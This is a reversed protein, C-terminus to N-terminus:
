LEKLRTNLGELNFEQPHWGRAWLVLEQQRDDRKGEPTYVAEVLEGYGPIGGCDEPPGAGLGELCLALEREEGPVDTKQIIKKIRIRHRWNDGFDYIYEFDKCLTPIERLFLGDEDGVTNDAMEGPDSYEEGNISFVHTHTGSWGYSLQLVHHLDKLSMSGPLRLLRLVPPDLDVIEVELLLYMDAPDRNLREERRWKLIKSEHHETILDMIERYNQEIEAINQGIIGLLDKEPSEEPHHHLIDLIQVLRAAYDSLLDIEESDFKKSDFNDPSGYYSETDAIWEVIHQFIRLAEGHLRKQERNEESPHYRDKVERSFTDFADLFSEWEEDNMGPDEIGIFIERVLDRYSIGIDMSNRICAEAYPLPIPLDYRSILAALSNEHLRADLSGAFSRAFSDPEVTKDWLYTDHGIKVLGIRSSEQLYGGMHISPHSIIEKGAHFFARALEEAPPLPWDVEEITKLFGSDLKKVFIEREGEEVRHEPLAQIFFRGKNWDELRAILYDGPRINEELYFKEMDFVSISILSHSYSHGQELVRVNDEAEMGLYLPLERSGFLTYYILVSDVPRTIRRRKIAGTSCNARIAAPSIKHNYLPLFRHGPFLIGKELEEETPAILVSGGSFFTSRLVYSRRDKKFLVGEGVLADAIEEPDPLKARGLAWAIQSPTFSDLRGEVAAKQLRRLITDRKLDIWAM